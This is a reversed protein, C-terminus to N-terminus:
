KSQKKRHFFHFIHPNKHLNQPYELDRVIFYGHKRDDTTDLFSKLLNGENREAVKIEVFNGTSLYPCMNTGCSVNFDWDQIKRTDSRKVYRNRMVFAPGGRKIKLYYDLNKM